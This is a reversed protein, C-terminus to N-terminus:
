QTRFAGSGGETASGHDMGAQSHGLDGHSGAAAWAARIREAVEHPAAHGDVWSVRPDRRFWREQRVAFQQTRVIAVEVADDLSRKGDLHEALERYGLAQAATRSWPRPLALLSRVEDLLGAEMMARFRARIRRATEARELRLGVQVFPTPPAVGLGPGYSSFPRDSGVTVELARLVRRRNAPEMRGAAEPDLRALRAHLSEVSAGAALEAELAAAVDPYRGPLELADIVARHYLGTGGVLVARSGRDAIADFARDAARQFRAVSFEEHPEVVDLLHHPVRAREAATPTATGTNMHRYVTMSDAAVAELSGVLEALALVVATKGSATPGVLALPRDLGAAGDWRNVHGRAGEGPKPPAAPGGIDADSLPALGLEWRLNSMAQRLEVALEPETAM